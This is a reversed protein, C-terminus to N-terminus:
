DGAGINVNIQLNWRRLLKGGAPASPDFMSYGASVNDLCFELTEPADISLTEIVYGLRKIATRNKLRELCLTLESDNRHEGSFYDNSIQAVHRMGGGLSPNNLIDAITRSPSSVSIKVNNRWVSNLSFFKKEPCRVLVYKTRKIVPTKERVSGSTFVVIDSFVQETLGWHEAASWGGIYCPSFVTDAVIWADERWESPSKANLPVTIYIGRRIRSLWGRACWYRLLSRVKPRPLGLTAKAEDIGFPTPHDRHLQSLLERHDKSIGSANDRTYQFSM